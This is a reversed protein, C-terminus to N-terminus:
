PIHVSKEQMLLNVNQPASTHIEHGIVQKFQNFVSFVVNKYHEIHKESLTAARIPQRWRLLRGDVARGLDSSLTIQDFLRLVNQNYYPDAISRKLDAM